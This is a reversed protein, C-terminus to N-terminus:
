APRHYVSTSILFGHLYDALSLWFHHLPRVYYRHTSGVQVLLCEACLHLDSVLNPLSKAFDLIYILAEVM